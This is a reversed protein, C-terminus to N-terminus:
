KKSSIAPADTVERSGSMRSLKEARALESSVQADQDLGWGFGRAQERSCAHPKKRKLKESKGPPVAGRLIRGAVEPRLRPASYALGQDKM